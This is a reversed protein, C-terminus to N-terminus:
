RTSERAGWGRLAAIVPRSAPGPIMQLACLFICVHAGKNLLLLFKLILVACGQVWRPGRLAPTGLHHCLDLGVFGAQRSPHLDSTYTRLQPRTRACRVPFFLAQPQARLEEWGKRLVATSGGAVSSPESLTLLCNLTVWSGSLHVREM